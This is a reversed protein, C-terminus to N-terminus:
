SFIRRECIWTFKNNCHFDAWNEVPNNVYSMVACDEDGNSNPEGKNWYATTLPTGDVWKWEGETDRDSLGVWAARDYMRKIFEQEERSNIIVLDAGKERCDDRSQNWDKKEASIYYLSSNYFRWGTYHDQLNRKTDPDETEADPDHVKVVDVSDYIDVVKEVKEGRELEAPCLPDAYVCDSM